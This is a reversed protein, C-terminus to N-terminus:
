RVGLDTREQAALLWLRHHAHEDAVDGLADGPRAHPGPHKFHATSSSPRVAPTSRTM